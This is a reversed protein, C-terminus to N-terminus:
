EMNEVQLAHRVHSKVLFLDVNLLAVLTVPNLWTEKAALFYLPVEM